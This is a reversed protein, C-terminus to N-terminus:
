IGKMKKDIAEEVKHIHSRNFVGLGKLIKGILLLVRCFIYSVFLLESDIQSNSNGMNIKDL